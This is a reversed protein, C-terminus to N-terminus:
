RAVEVKLHFNKKSFLSLDKRSFDVPKAYLELMKKGTELEDKELVAFCKTSVKRAKPKYHLFELFVAGRKPFEKRSMLTFEHDFEIADGKRNQGNRSKVPSSIEYGNDDRISLRICPDILDPANKMTIADIILKIPKNQFDVEADEEGEEEDVSNKEKSNEDKSGKETKTNKESKAGKASSSSRKKRPDNADDDTDDSQDGVGSTGNEKELMMKARKGLNNLITVGGATAGPSSKAEDQVRTKLLTKLKELSSKETDNFLTDERKMERKIATYLSRYLDEAEDVQGWSDCDVANKLQTKWFAIQDVHEEWAM